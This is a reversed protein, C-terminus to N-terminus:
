KADVRAPWHWTGPTRNDDRPVSTRWVSGGPNSIPFDNSGDVFVQLQCEDRTYNSGPFRELCPAVVIAPRVQWKAPGDELVYHVIRGTTPKM